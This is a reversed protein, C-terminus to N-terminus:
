AKTKDEILDPHAEAYLLAARVEEETLRGLWLKAIEKPTMGHQVSYAWLVWVPVGKGKVYPENAMSPGTPIEVFDEFSRERSGDSHSQRRKAM